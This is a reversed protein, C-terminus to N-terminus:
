RRRVVIKRKEKERENKGELERELALLQAELASIGGTGCALSDRAASERRRRRMRVELVQCSFAMLYVFLSLNPTPLLGLLMQAIRIRTSTSTARQSGPQPKVCWIWLADRFGQIIELPAIVPEPLRSLFTTLLAYVDDSVEDKLAALIGFKHTPSDFIALLASLRPHVPDPDRPSCSLTRRTFKNPSPSTPTPNSPTSIGSRYLEEVCAFVVIPLDHEFGGLVAKTSAYLSVQRLPIGFVGTPGSSSVMTAQGGKISKARQLRAAGEMLEREHMALMVDLPLYERMKAADSADILSALENLIHQPDRKSFKRPIPAPLLSPAPLDIHLPQTKVPSPPVLASARQKAKPKSPSIDLSASPRHQRRPRPLRSPTGHSHGYEAVLNPELHKSPSSTNPRASYIESNRASSRPPRTPSPIRTSPTNVFPRSSAM